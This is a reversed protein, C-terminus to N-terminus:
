LELDIVQQTTIHDVFLFNRCCALLDLNLSESSSLVKLYAYIVFELDYVNM